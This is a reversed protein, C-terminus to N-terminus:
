VSESISISESQYGVSDTVVEEEIDTDPCEVAIQRAESHRPGCLLQVLEKKIYANSFLTSMRTFLCYSGVEHVIRLGSSRFCYQKYRKALLVNSALRRARVANYKQRKSSRRLNKDVATRASWKKLDSMYHVACVMIQSGMLEPANMSRWANTQCYPRYASIQHIDCGGTCSLEGRERELQTVFKSPPIFGHANLNFDIKCLCCSSGDQYCQTICRATFFQITGDVGYCQHYMYKITDNLIAWQM